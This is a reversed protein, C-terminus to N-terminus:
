PVSSLQVRIRSVNSKVLLGDDYQPLHSSFFTAQPLFFLLPHCVASPIKLLACLEKRNHSLPKTTNAKLDKEAEEEMRARCDEDGVGTDRQRV